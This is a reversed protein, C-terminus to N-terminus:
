FLGQTSMASWESVNDQNQALWDNSEGEHQTSLPPAAFVLKITQPNVQGPSPLLCHKMNYYANSIGRRCDVKSLVTYTRGDICDFRVLSCFHQLNSEQEHSKTLKNNVQPLDATKQTYM